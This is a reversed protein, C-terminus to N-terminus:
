SNDILLIEKDNTIGLKYNLERMRLEYNGIQLEGEGNTM